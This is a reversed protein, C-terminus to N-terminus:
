CVLDFRSQLESTHEESRPLQALAERFSNLHTTAETIFTTSTTEDPQHALARLRNGLWDLAPQLTTLDTLGNDIVPPSLRIFRDITHGTEAARAKTEPNTDAREQLDRLATMWASDHDGSVGPEATLADLLPESVSRPVLTKAPTESNTTGFSFILFEALR